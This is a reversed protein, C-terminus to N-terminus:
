MTASSDTRPRFRSSWPHGADIQARLDRLREESSGRDFYPAQDAAAASAIM